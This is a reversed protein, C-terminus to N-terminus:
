GSLEEYVDRLLRLGEVADDEGGDTAQTRKALDRAEEVRSDATDLGDLYRSIEKAYEEVTEAVARNHASNLSEPREDPSPPEGAGVGEVLKVVYALEEDTPERAGVFEGAVHKVECAMVYTPEPPRLEGGQVFGTRATYERCREETEELADDFEGGFRTLLDDTEVAGTTDEEADDVARSRLSGCEPCAPERTEFYSWTEGCDLCEREGRIEM